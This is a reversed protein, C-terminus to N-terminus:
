DVRDFFEKIKFDFYFDFDKLLNDVTYDLKTILEPIIDM